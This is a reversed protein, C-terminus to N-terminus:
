VQICSRLLLDEETFIQILASEEKINDLYSWLAKKLLLGAEEAASFIIINM